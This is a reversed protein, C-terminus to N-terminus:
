GWGASRDARPRPSRPARARPRAGARRRSRARTRPRPTELDRLRDARGRILSEDAFPSLELRPEVGRSRYFEVMADIEADEVLGDLGVGCAQNQWSGPEHFGMVGGAFPEVVPTVAALMRAQRREELLAIEVPTM